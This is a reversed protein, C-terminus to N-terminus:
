DIGMLFLRRLRTRIRRPGMVPSRGKQTLESLRYRASMISRQAQQSCDHTHAHTKESSLASSWNAANVETRRAVRRRSPRGRPRLAASLHRLFWLEVERLAASSSTACECEGEDSSCLGCQCQALRNGESGGSAARRVHPERSKRTATSLQQGGTAAAASSFRERGGSCVPMIHKRRRAAKERRQKMETEVSM